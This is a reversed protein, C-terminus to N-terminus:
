VGLHRLGGFWLVDLPIVLNHVLFLAALLGTMSLIIIIGKNVVKRRAEDPTGVHPIMGLPPAGLLEIIGRSGRVTTDMSEGLAATGVGGAFSFVVGLFLIALRNPKAPKEPLMPPEILTFREGKHETELSHALQAEMQKATVEKYKAVASEYDRTLALYEREVQPTQALLTNYSAYKAKLEQKKARLTALETTSAELQAKLQIYAPNDADTLATPEQKLVPAKKLDEELSTITRLLRKIDPHAESYRKRVAALEAKLGKLQTEIEGRLNGPGTELKLAEIEKRIRVIDPHNPAYRSALGLYDTQLVKLRDEPGLIRQGTETYLTNYPSLLALQGRLYVEREEFSRIQREVERLENETQNMLQLNLQILEPLKGANHEKFDALKKELESVKVALKQAEEALFQSTEVAAETRNKLNENLYLSVLENAVNRALKPSQNEYALTFAITAEQARGSRPDRVEANVTELHVDDRLQEIVAEMPENTQPEPYLNYKEIIARLNATTMVRQSILQIREDAYSTIVSRVLDQPIEQQEILITASARYVPPLGFALSITILLIVTMASLLSGKRRRLTTLYEGLSRETKEM